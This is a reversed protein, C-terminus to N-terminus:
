QRLGMGAIMMDDLAVRFAHQGLTNKLFDHGYRFM